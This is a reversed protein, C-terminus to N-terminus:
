SLRFQFCKRESNHIEITTIIAQSSLSTTNLQTPVLSFSHYSILYIVLCQRSIKMNYTFWLRITNISISQSASKQFKVQHINTMLICIVTLLYKGKLHVKPLMIRCSFYFSFDFWVINVAYMNAERRIILGKQYKNNNCLHNRTQRGIKTEIDIKSHM